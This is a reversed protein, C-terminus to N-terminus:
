TSKKFPNPILLKEPLDVVRDAEAYTKTSFILSNCKNCRKGCGAFSWLSVIHYENCFGCEVFGKSRGNAEGSVFKDFMKTHTVYQSRGDDWFTHEWHIAKIKKM